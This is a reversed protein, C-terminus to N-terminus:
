TWQSLQDCARAYADAVTITIHDLGQVGIM